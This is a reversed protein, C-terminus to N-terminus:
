STSSCTKGKIAKILILSFFFGLLIAVIDLIDFRGALYRIQMVELIIMTSLGTALYMFQLKFADSSTHIILFSTFSFAWLGDPLNYVFWDYDSNLQYRHTNIWRIIQEINDPPYPRFLVYIILALILPAIVFLSYSRLLAYKKKFGVTNAM